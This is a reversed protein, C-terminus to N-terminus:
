KVPRESYMVDTRLLYKAGATVLAGEHLLCRDGHGHILAAGTEPVVTLVVEDENENSYFVTNGGRLESDSADNLYVLVTFRSHFRTEPDLDSQDVHCGFRQGKSYRYFRISPNLGAAFLGEYEPPVLPQLRQWLLEAFAPMRLLIRDNDRFAIERTARHTVRAFGQEVAFDMVRRCEDRSLFSPVAYILDDLLPKTRLSSRRPAFQLAAPVVDPRVSPKTSKAKVNGNAKKPKKDSAAAAGGAPTRRGM